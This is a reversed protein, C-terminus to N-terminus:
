RSRRKRPSRSRWEITDGAGTLMWTRLLSLKTKSLYTWAAVTATHLRKQTMRVTPPLSCKFEGVAPLLMAYGGDVAADYKYCGGIEGRRFIAPPVQDVDYGSSYGVEEIM